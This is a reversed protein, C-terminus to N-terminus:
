NCSAVCGLNVSRMQSILQVKRKESANRSTEPTWGGPEIGFKNTWKVLKNRCCGREKGLNESFQDKDVM